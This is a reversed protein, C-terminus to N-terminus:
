ENVVWWHDVQWWNPGAGQDKGHLTYNDGFLETFSSFKNDKDKYKVPMHDPEVESQIYTIKKNDIYPKMTKVVSLDNGELDTVLLEVKEVGEEQLFTCLNTTKLKLTKTLTIKNGSMKYYNENFDELPTTTSAYDMKTDNADLIYFPVEEGHSEALITNHFSIRFDGKYKNALKQYLETNAEFCYIKDWAYKQLLSDLGEGHNTGCYVLIKM